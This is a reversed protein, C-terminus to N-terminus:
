LGRKNKRIDALQDMDLNDIGYQLRELIKQKNKKFDSNNLDMSFTHHTIFRGDYDLNEIFLKLEEMLGKESLPNFKGKKYLALLGTGEFLVLGGTGVVTPNTQSFIKASNLAHDKTHEAGGVGNLFTLWYDIGAKDLKECQELIDKSEYGKNVSKLTADDGSEAGLNLEVIGKEKLTKLESVSKDMINDVRAAMTMIEINPLYKHILNCIENLRSFSLAFPDASLLQLRDTEPYFAKIEALDEEIWEMPSPQFKVDSYMNCFKCRNHSCGQTIELLPSPPAYPNRYVTGTYHM